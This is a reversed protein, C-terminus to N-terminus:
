RAGGALVAVAGLPMREPDRYTAWVEVPVGRFVSVLRAIVARDPGALHSETLPTATLAQACREVARGGDRADRAEAHLVGAPTVSWTLGSVEPRLEPHVALLEALATAPTVMGALHSSNVAM